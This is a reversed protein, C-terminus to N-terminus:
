AAKSVAEAKVGSEPIAAAGAARRERGSASLVALSAIMWVGAATASWTDLLITGPIYGLLLAASAGGM